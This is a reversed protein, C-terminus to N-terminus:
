EQSKIRTNHTQVALGSKEQTTRQVALGPPWYQPCRWVPSTLGPERPPLLRNWAATAPGDPGM